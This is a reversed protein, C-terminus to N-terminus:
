YDHKEGGDGSRSFRLNQGIVAGGSWGVDIKQLAELGLPGPEEVFHTRLSETYKGGLSFTYSM